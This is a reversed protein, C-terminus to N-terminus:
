GTLFRMRDRKGKRCRARWMIFLGKMTYMYLARRAPKQEDTIGRSQGRDHRVMDARMESVTHQQRVAASYAMMMCIDKRLASMPLDVEETM